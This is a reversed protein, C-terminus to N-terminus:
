QVWREVADIKGFIGDDTKPKLLTVDILPLGFGPLTKEHARLLDGIADLCAARTRDENQFRRNFNEMLNEENAGFLALPEASDQDDELLELTVAAAAYIQYM